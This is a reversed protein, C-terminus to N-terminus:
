VESGYRPDSLLMRIAAGSDAFTATHARLTAAQPAALARDLEARSGFFLLGVGDFGTGSSGAGDSGTGESGTGDSGTGDSGTAESGTAESGTAESGAAGSGTAESGTAESGTAESGTAESGAGGPEEVPLLRVERLGPLERALQRHEDLWARLFEERTLGAARRLLVCYVTAESV